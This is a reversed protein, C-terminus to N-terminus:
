SLEDLEGGILGVSLDELRELEALGADQDEVVELLEGRMTIQEEFPDVGRRLELDEHGRAVPKLEPPLSALQEFPEVLHLPAGEELLAGLLQEPEIFGVVLLERGDIAEDFVEVPHREGDLEAGRM